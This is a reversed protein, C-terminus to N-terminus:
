LLLFSFKGGKAIVGVSKKKSNLIEFNITEKISFTSLFIKRKKNSIKKIQM